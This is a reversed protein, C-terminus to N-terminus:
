HLRVEPAAHKEMIAITITMTSLAARIERQLVCCIRQFMANTISSSNSIMGFSQM